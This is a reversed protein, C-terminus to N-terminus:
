GSSVVTWESVCQVLSDDTVHTDPWVKGMLSGKRVLDGGADVLIQFVHRTQPRLTTEAGEADRLVGRDPDYTFSGVQVPKSKPM